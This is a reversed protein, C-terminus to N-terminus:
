KRVIILKEKARTAATYLYKQHDVGTPFSEEFVLVKNYQSGQAKWCTICYGYDFEQPRWEKPFIKFNTKNITPEGTTLLKYDANVNRFCPDQNCQSVVYGEPLFDFTLATKLFQNSSKRLYSVTGVTGNVMVDGLENPEDWNNRLCILKDGEIPEDNDVNYLQKRMFRNIERRTNNKACIIQDAWTYMGTVVDKKDIIQVQKGKYLPLNKGARIDMTLQIIENDRAQRMIEDLFIHPHHLVLNDTGIPPLQAPDGLALVYIHHSLLLDWLELPLMSVEDVVIIKYFPISQRPEHRFSGNKCLYSKYLLRHATMANECGNEQLVLAAKGTYAIYCVEDPQLNLAQIIFHM